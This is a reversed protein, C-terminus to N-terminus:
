PPKLSQPTHLCFEEKDLVVFCESLIVWFVMGDLLQYKNVM